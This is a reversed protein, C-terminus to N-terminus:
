NVNFGVLVGLRQFIRKCIDIELNADSKVDLIIGWVRRFDDFGSIKALIMLAEHCSGKFM